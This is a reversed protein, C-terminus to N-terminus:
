EVPVPVVVGARTRAIATRTVRPPAPIAYPIAPPVTFIQPILRVVRPSSTERVLTAGLIVAVFFVGLWTGSGALVGRVLYRRALLRLEFSGGPPPPLSAARAVM